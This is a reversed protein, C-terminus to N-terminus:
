WVRNKKLDDVNLTNLWNKFTTDDEPSKKYMQKRIEAATIRDRVLYEQHNVGRSGENGAGTPKPYKKEMIAKVDPDNTIYRENLKGELESLEGELESLKPDLDPLLDSM